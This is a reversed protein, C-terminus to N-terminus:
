PFGSCIWLEAFALCIGPSAQANSCGLLLLVLSHPIRLLVVPLFVGPYVVIGCFARSYFKQVVQYEM